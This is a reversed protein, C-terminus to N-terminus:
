VQEPCMHVTYIRMYAWMSFVGLGFKAVLLVQFRSPTRISIIFCWGLNPELRGSGHKAWNVARDFVAHLEM